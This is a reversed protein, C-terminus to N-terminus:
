AQICVGVDTLSPPVQQDPDFFAVCELQAPCAPADLDCWPTCCREDDGVCALVLAKDVCALGPVCESVMDCTQGAFAPTATLLCQFNNGGWYCGFEVPCDQLLPDCQKTCLSVAGSFLCGWGLPCMLTQPSGLCFPVCTGHLEGQEWELNWCFGEADCDDQGEQFSSLMCPEGWQRDGLIPMCKNADLFSTGPQTAYPVCKHTPFCDQTLPECPENTVDPPEGWTDNGDGWDSDGDGDDDGDGDGASTSGASTSTTGASTSTTGASTGPEDDGDGDGPQEDGVSTGASTSASTSPGEGADAGTGATEGADDGATGFGLDPLRGPGCGALALALLGLVGGRMGVVSASGPVACLM